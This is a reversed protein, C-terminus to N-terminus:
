GGPYEKYKRLSIVQGKRSWPLGLESPLKAQNYCRLLAEDLGDIWRQRSGPEGNLRLLPEPFDAIRPMSDHMGNICLVQSAAAEPGCLPQRRSRLGDLADWLKKMEEADPSGYSKVSGDPFEARFESGRGSLVVRAREFEYLLLPGINQLSSHSVYFLIEAETDTLCRVAATDFNEIDYARYLEAEVQVPLASSHTEKGLVYFMNHLDHAMANNAPSDLVWRGQDDKIKGAWDNRRYYSEDRPWFYLCRLRRPRGFANQRIDRKLEQVATSFSWQFGVAIWKKYKKRAAAMLRAEQITAAIPKECLVNSGSALALCTQSSHHQIPSSIIALDARNSSYFKELSDFIPINLRELEDLLRCRHPQPDVAGAICFLGSALNKLLATLYASGQGGIGVVVVSVPEGHLLKTLSM